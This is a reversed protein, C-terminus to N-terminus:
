QSSDEDNGWIAQVKKQLVLLAATEALARDKRNLEKKLAKNEQRLIKLESPSVAKERSTNGNIFDLKWQKVHHPYIGQERCYESLKEDSLSACACVMNQREEPTWDQPRKDQTMRNIKDRTVVDFEQNRAQVIWKGLTSCGVGLSGAIENVTTNGSRSLAKEVAQVKFSQSFRASM